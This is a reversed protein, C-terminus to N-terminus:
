CILAKRNCGLPFFGLLKKESGALQGFKCDTALLQSTLYDRPKGQIYKDGDRGAVEWAWVIGSYQVSYSDPASDPNNLNWLTQGLIGHPHSTLKEDLVEMSFHVWANGPQRLVKIEPRMKLQFKITGPIEIEYVDIEDDADKRHGKYAIKISGDNGAGVLMAENEGLSFHLFCINLLYLGYLILRTRILFSFKKRSNRAM